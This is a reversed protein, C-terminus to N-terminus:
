GAPAEELAEAIMQEVPMAEGEAWAAAFEAQELQARAASVLRDFDVRENPWRPASSGAWLAEAAGLLRAARHPKHRGLAVRAMGILGWAVVHREGVRIQRRHRLSEACRTAAEEWRGLEGAINGLMALPAPAFPLRERFIALMEEFIAYAALYDGQHQLTYALHFLTELLGDKADLERWLPLCQEFLARAAPYQEQWHAVFGLRTIAWAITLRDDLERAAALSEEALACAATSDGEHRAVWALCHLADAIGRPEDLERRIALSEEVSPRATTADWQDVAVWGLNLLATAIGARDELSQWIALSEEHLRRAAAQDHQLRTFRGASALARARAATPDRAGSHALVRLFQRRGEELYGRREWFPKVESVVSRQGSDVAEVSWALAARLNDHEQELRGLWRRPNGRTLECEATEALALFYEAHRERWRDREGSQTLRERAYERIMELLWYRGKGGQEEYILLSKEVLRTLLDLVQENQIKSGCIFASPRLGSWDSTADDVASRRERLLGREDANMQPELDSCVAEAAELTCGGAFASLRRLLAQEPPTLLDYSWDILARLTQHRPLATRRGGILLGFMDDLRQGLQELPLAKLRAAALELALPIGDLRCCIQAVV